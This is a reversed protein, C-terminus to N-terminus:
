AVNKVKGKSGRKRNLYEEYRWKRLCWPQKGSALPLGAGVVLFLRITRTLLQKVQLFYLRLFTFCGPVNYVFKLVIERSLSRAKRQVGHDVSRSNNTKFNKFSKKKRTYLGNLAQPLIGITSAAVGCICRQWCRYRMTTGLGLSVPFFIPEAGKELRMQTTQLFRCSSGIWTTSKHQQSAFRRPLTGHATLRTQLSCRCNTLNVHCLCESYRDNYRSINDNTNLCKSLYSLM